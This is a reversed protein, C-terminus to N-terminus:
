TGTVERMLPDVPSRTLNARGPIQPPRNRGAPTATPRQSSRLVLHTHIWRLTALELNEFGHWPGEDKVCEARCFGILARRWPTPAGKATLCGGRDGNPAPAATADAWMERALARNRRRIMESKTKGETLRRVVYAPPNM